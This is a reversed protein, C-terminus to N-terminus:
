AVEETPTQDCPVSQPAFNVSERARKVVARWEDSTLSNYTRDPFLEDQARELWDIGTSREKEPVGRPPRDLKKRYPLGERYAASYIGNATCGLRRAIEAVPRKENWLRILKKRDITRPQTSM